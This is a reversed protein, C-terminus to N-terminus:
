ASCFPMRYSRNFQWPNTKHFLEYLITVELDLIAELNPNGLKSRSPNKKAPIPFLKIECSKQNQVCFCGENILKSFARNTIVILGCNAGSNPHQAKSTSSSSFSSPFPVLQGFSYTDTIQTTRNDCLDASAYHGRCARRKQFGSCLLLRWIM